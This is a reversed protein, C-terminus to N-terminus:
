DRVLVAKRNKSLTRVLTLYMNLGPSIGHFFVLPLSRESHHKHTNKTKQPSPITFQVTSAEIEHGGEPPPTHPKQHLMPQHHLTIRRHCLRGAMRDHVCFPHWAVIRITYCQKTDIWGDMWGGIYCVCLRVSPGQPTLHRPCSRYWYAIGNIEHRKFGLLMLVAHGVVQIGPDPDPNAHTHHNHPVPRDGRDICM